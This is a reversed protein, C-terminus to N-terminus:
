DTLLVEDDATPLASLFTEMETDSVDKLLEKVNEKDSSITAPKTEKITVPVNQIFDELDKISVKKIEQEISPTTTAVLTQTAGAPHLAVITQPKDDFYQYGALFLAGGVVAAAAIRMWKSAFLPVVIAIPQTVKALIQEPLNIFYEQPVKYPTEKTVADLVPSTTTGTLGPLGDITQVFYFFPVSYPTERSISALMPSLEQLEQSVSPEGSKVKALISAALGSFYGEPVSFVPQSNHAPLNSNLDRLEDHINKQSSM